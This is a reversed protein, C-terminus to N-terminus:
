LNFIEKHDKLVKYRWKLIADFCRNFQITHNHLLLGAMKKAKLLGKWDEIDEIEHYIPLTDFLKIFTSCLLRLDQDSFNLEQDFIAKLKQLDDFFHNVHEPLETNCLQRIVSEIIYYVNYFDDNSETDEVFYPYNLIGDDISFSNLFYQGGSEPHNETSHKMYSGFNLRDKWRNDPISMNSRNLAWLIFDTVQLGPNSKDAIIIEFKPYCTVFSPQKYTLKLLQNFLKDLWIKIVEESLGNRGEIRLIIKDIRNNFFELSSLTLTQRNLAEITLKRERESDFSRDHYSYIFCASIHKNIGKCLHSHANKSDECAHFYSRKMTREDQYNTDPDDKLNELCEFILSESIEEKTILVGSGITSNTDSKQKKFETEDSYAYLIM